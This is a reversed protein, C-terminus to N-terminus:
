LIVAYISCGCSSSYCYSSLISLPNDMWWNYIPSRLWDLAASDGSFCIIAVFIYVRSWYIIYRWIFIDDMLVVGLEGPAMDLAVPAVFDFSVRIYLYLYHQYCPFYEWTTIFRTWPSCIYILLSLFLPPLM